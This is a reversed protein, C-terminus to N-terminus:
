EIDFNEDVDLEKEVIPPATSKTDNNIAGMAGDPVGTTKAADDGSVMAVELLGFVVVVVSAVLLSPLLQREQSM